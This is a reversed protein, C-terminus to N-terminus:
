RWDTLLGARERDVLLETRLKGRIRDYLKGALEDMDKDTDSSTAAMATTQIAGQSPADAVAAGASAERQVEAPAMTAEGEGPWPEPVRNVAAIRQVAATASVPALTLDSRGSGATARGIAQRQLTPRWGGLDQDARGAQPLAM